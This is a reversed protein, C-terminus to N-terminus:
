TKKKKLSLSKYIEVRLDLLKRAEQFINKNKDDLDNKAKIYFFIKLKKIVLFWIM